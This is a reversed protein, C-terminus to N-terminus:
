GIVCRIWNEKQDDPITPFVFLLASDQDIMISATHKEDMSLGEVNMLQAYLEVWKTNLTAETAM